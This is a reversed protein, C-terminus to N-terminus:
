GPPKKFIQALDIGFLDKVMQQVVPNEAMVGLQSAVGVLQNLESPANYSYSQTQIPLDKLMSKQFELQKYPFERQKQFEGLDAAIGEAEINRQLEGGKMQAGLAALGYDGAQKAAAMGRNQEINFQEMAKDFASKYGEGTTKAIQRLAAENGLSEMVAQRGGGYAGARTLKGMDEVRQIGAQRRIDALQPELMASLYPNMYNQAQQATFTQPTYTTQAATPLTLGALGQFAQKQLDSAGATLPGGYAQYGEGALGQAQGLMNTVYDAVWPSLSSSRGAESGALPDAPLGPSKAPDTM